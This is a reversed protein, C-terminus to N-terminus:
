QLLWKLHGLVLCLTLTLNNKVGFIYGREFVESRIISKRIIILFSFTLALIYPYYFEAM